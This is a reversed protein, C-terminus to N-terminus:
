MSALIEELEEATCITPQREDCSTHSPYQKHKNCLGRIRAKLICGNYNCTKSVKGHLGCLRGVTTVSNYCGDRNCKHGGGHSFCKGMGTNHKYCEDEDCLREWKGPKSTNKRWRFKGGKKERALFSVTKDKRMFSVFYYPCSNNTTTPGNIMQAADDSNAKTKIIKREMEGKLGLFL